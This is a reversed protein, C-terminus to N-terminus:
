LLQLQLENKEIEKLFQTLNARGTKRSKKLAIAGRKLLIENGVAFEPMGEYIPTFLKKKLKLTEEGASFSGGKSRSEILIMAESLGIIISNRAMARQVTWIQKPLFQSLVLVRDWDWVKELKKRIYFQDIGYPLVMITTGGKELTTYHTQQDVGSAYGSIVVLKNEVIQESCDIAVQLGKESAKRSGCFGVSKLNLLNKNGLYSLVPPTNLSLNKLLSNPYEGQLLTILGGNRSYIKEISRLLSRDHDQDEFGSIKQRLFPTTETSNDLNKLVKNLSVPGIGKVSLAKYLDYGEKLGIM